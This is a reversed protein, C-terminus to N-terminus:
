DNQNLVRLIGNANLQGKHKKILNNNKDYILIYPISNANFTTSFVGKKDELFIINEQNDLKYLEVFKKIAETEEFSVFIFQVNKFNKLNQSVSKAEHHCFDCDSNFYIFITSTNQKLDTNSFSTSNLTQLEFKPITQIQKAIQSKEKAKSIVNYGLYSILSIISLIIIFLVKRKNM